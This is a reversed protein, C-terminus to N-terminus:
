WLRKGSLDEGKWLPRSFNPRTLGGVEKFRARYRAFGHAYDGRLLEMLALHWHRSGYEAENVERGDENAITEGAVDVTKRYTVEAEELRNLSQYTQGLNDWIDARDPKLTLAKQYMGIAEEHRDLRNLIVGYGFWAYHNAPSLRTAETGAKLGTAYDKVKEAVNCVTVWGMVM